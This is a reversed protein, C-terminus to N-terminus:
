VRFKSLEDQLRSSDDSLADASSEVKTRHQINENSLEIIEDMYAILEKTKTAIYTSQHM